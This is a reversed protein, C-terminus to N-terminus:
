PSKGQADADLPTVLVSRQARDVVQDAVSAALLRELWSRHRTGIVVLDVDHSTAAELIADVPNPEGAVIPAEHFHMRRTADDLLAKQVGALEGDSQIAVPWAIEPSVYVTVPTVNHVALVPADLTDGLEAAKRLVPYQADRLDSAALISDGGSARRAVLVPRGSIRALETVTAGYRGEQPPMVILEADLEAAHAVVQEMFPGRRLQFAGAELTTGLVEEAWALTQEASGFEAEVGELAQVQNFHPFLPNSHVVQPLVRLLHLEASLVRALAFARQLSATPRGAEFLTFLVRRKQPTDTPM